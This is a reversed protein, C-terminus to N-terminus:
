LGAQDDPDVLLVVSGELDDFNLFLFMFFGAASGSKNIGTQADGAVRNNQIYEHYHIFKARFANCKWTPNLMCCPM